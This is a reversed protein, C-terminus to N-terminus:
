DWLHVVRDFAEYEIRGIAQWAEGVLGHAVHWGWRGPGLPDCVLTLPSLCGRVLLEVGSHVYGVSICSRSEGSDGDADLPDVHHGIGSGHHVPLYSDM